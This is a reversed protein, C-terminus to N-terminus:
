ASSGDIAQVTVKGCSADLIRIADPATSSTKRVNEVDSRAAKLVDDVRAGLMAQKHIPQGNKLWEVIFM